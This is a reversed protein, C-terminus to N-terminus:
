GKCTSSTRVSVALGALPPLPAGAAFQRDVAEAAATAQADFRRIYTHRNADTDAADLSSRCQEAAFTRRAAIEGRVATLDPTM